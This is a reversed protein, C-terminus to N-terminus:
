GSIQISKLEKILGQLNIKRNCANYLNSFEKITTFGRYISYRFNIEHDSDISLDWHFDDVSTDSKDSLTKLLTLPDPDRTYDKTLTIKTGHVGRNERTIYGAELIRRMHLFPNTIGTDRSIQSVNIFTPVMTGNCEDIIHLYLMATSASHFVKSDKKFKKFNIDM